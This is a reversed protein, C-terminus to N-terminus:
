ESSMKEITALKQCDNEANPKTSTKDQQAKRAAKDLM